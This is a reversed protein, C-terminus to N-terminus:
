TRGRALAGDVFGWVEDVVTERALRGDPRYWRLLGNVADLVMQTAVGADVARFEDEHVGREIVSRVYDVYAREREGVEGLAVRDLFRRQQILLGLEHSHEFIVRCHERVLRKLAERAPLRRLEEDRSLDRLRKGARLILRRLLDEKSRVYYYLSAKNMGLAEGLDALSSARYGKTFFLRAAADLVEQLRPPEGLEPPPAEKEEVPSV